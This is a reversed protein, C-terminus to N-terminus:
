LYGCAICDGVLGNVQKFKERTFECDYYVDNAMLYRVVKYFRAMRDRLDTYYYAEDFVDTPTMAVAISDEFETPRCKRVYM